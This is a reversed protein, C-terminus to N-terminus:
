SFFLNQGTQLSDVLVYDYNIFGTKAIPSAFSTEDM